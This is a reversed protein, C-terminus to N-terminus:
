APWEIGLLSSCIEFHKASQDPKRAFPHKFGAKRRDGYYEGSQWAIGPTGDIFYALNEGGQVDSIGFPKILRSEYFKRMWSGTDRSFNSAVVGPHFSCTAIRPHYRRHLEQAFILNALKANGYARHQDFKNLGQIDDLAPRGFLVNAMSSTAIVRANSDFLQPLLEHVLLMPALHNVQFTLEYGDDTIKPGDFLGGANNALVDIREGRLQEALARVDDLRAFDAVIAQAGLESAIANTRERNRGVLILRNDCAAALHRAAERGVGSSAGTIVITRM